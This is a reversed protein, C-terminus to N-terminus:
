RGAMTKSVPEPESTNRLTGFHKGDVRLRFASAKPNRWTQLANEHQKGGEHLTHYQYITTKM